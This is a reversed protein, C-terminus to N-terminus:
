DSTFFLYNGQPDVYLIVVEDNQLSINLELNTNYLPIKERCILIQKQMKLKGPIAVAPKTKVQDQEYRHTPAPSM